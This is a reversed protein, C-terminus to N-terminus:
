AAFIDMPMRDRYEKLTALTRAEDAGMMRSYGSVDACFITTLKRKMNRREGTAAM